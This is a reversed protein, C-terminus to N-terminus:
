SGYPTGGSTKFVERDDHLTGIHNGIYVRQRVGIDSISEIYKGYCGDEKIMFAKDEITLAIPPTQSFANLSLSLSTILLLKKM